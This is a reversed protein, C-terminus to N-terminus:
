RERTERLTEFEARLSFHGDHLHHIMGQRAADIGKIAKRKAIGM